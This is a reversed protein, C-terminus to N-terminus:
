FTFQDNINLLVVQTSSKGLADNFDILRYNSQHMPIVIKPNIIKTAQCAEEIDMVYTGGIPLFAIDIDSLNHMEPILDTDGAFYLNKGNIHIIFGLFDDKPHFKKTSHGSPTNYAYITDLSFHELDLHAGPIVLTSNTPLEDKCSKSAIIKTQDKLLLDLMEKQLHDRHVHSILIYDAKEKLHNSDIGQNEFLGSYGPDLHVIISGYAIKFWSSNSLRTIELKNQMKQDGKIIFKM